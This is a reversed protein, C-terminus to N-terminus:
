NFFFIYLKEFRFLLYHTYTCIHIQMYIHKQTQPYTYTYMYIYILAKGNPKDM